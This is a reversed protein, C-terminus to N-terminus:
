LQQSIRSSITFDSVVTVNAPLSSSPDYFVVWYQIGSVINCTLTSGESDGSYWSAKTILSTNQVFANYQDYTLIGVEVNHDSTYSGKLTISHGGSYTFAPAIYQGPRLPYRQGSQIITDSSRTGLYAVYFMVTLIIIVTLIAGMMMIWEKRYAGFLSKSKSASEM